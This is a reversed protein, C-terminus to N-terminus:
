SDNYDEEVDEYEAEVENDYTEAVYTEDNYAVPEAVYTEDVYDVPEEVYTVDNYVVPDAVYTDDKYVPEAVDYQLENVRMQALKKEIKLSHGPAFLLVAFPLAQKM